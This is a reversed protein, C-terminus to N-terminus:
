SRSNWRAPPSARKSRLRAYLGANRYLAARCPARGPAGQLARCCSTSIAAGARRTRARATAAFRRGIWYAEIRGRLRSATEPKTTWIPEIVKLVLGTDIAQVPLAGIVPEAYTALTAEWQAAHKANRWGARHAAIYARRMAQVHDGQGRRATAAGARGGRRSRTSARMGSGRADLAKARAEHLGYLALPGLGMWRPRRDLMYRLM